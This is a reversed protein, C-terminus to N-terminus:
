PSPQASKATLARRLERLKAKARAANENGMRLMIKQGASLAELEPDAYAYLVKPQTLPTPQPADPASLMDDIAAILRDNFYGNPYGLEAYAEQFLPYFKVYVAVLKKTDVGEALKVYRAYRAANAPAILLGEAQGTTAFQGPVPKFPLVRQPVSKRPLADVTAVARRVAGDLLFYQDLSAKSFVGGLADRMAPDSEGLGPLAAQKTDVAAEEIPHQIAPVASAAPPTPQAAPTVPPLVPPERYKQWLWYGGSAAAVLLILPFLWRATPNM